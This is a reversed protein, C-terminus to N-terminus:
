RRRRQEVDDVVDEVEGLDLGALELEFRDLEVQAVDDVVDSSRQGHPRVALPELQDHRRRVRVHRVAHTPSGRRSRWTRILRIPLAMLNVSRPSTTPRRRRTPRSDALRAASRKATARCRCRCRRRVLELASNSGKACASPEVVRRSRRCRGPGPWRAPVEDLQHAARMQTSLVGPWPLVNWKVAASRRARRRAGAVRGVGPRAAAPRAARAPRRRCRSWGGRGRPSARDAPAHPRDRRRRARCASACRRLPTTRRRATRLQHQEVHVHRLHVAEGDGLRHPRVRVHGARGDHM